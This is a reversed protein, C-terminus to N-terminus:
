TGRGPNYILGGAKAYQQLVDRAEDRLVDRVVEIGRKQLEGVWDAPKAGEDFGIAAADEGHAACVVRRVGSWPIAGLCMACPETSTALEYVGAAGLDYHGVAQQALAVAIMEAHAMSCNSAEVLNVGASVLRGSDAAFVAAGFPGGTRQAINQRALELAFRMRSEASEFARTERQVLAGLWPPLRLVVESNRPGGDVVQAGEKQHGDKMGAGRVDM